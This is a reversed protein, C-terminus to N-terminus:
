IYRDEFDRWWSRIGKKQAWGKKRNEELDTNATIVGKKNIASVSISSSGGSSVIVAGPLSAGVALASKPSKPVLLSQEDEDSDSDGESELLASVASSTGGETLLSEGNAAATATISRMGTLTLMPATLGGM